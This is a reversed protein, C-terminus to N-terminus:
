LLCVVEGKVMLYIDRWFGFYWSKGFYEDGINLGGVFGIIGDIVVIKCYNCFNIKNNFFLFRVLLFLIM